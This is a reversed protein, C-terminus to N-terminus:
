VHGKSRAPLSRLWTAIETADDKSVANPPLAVVVDELTYGHTAELSVTEGSPAFRAEAAWDGLIWEAQLGGDPTPYLRPREVDEHDALLRALVGRAQAVAQSTPADGEGECWGRETKELVEVRAWLREIDEAREHDIPEIEEVAELKRPADSLTRGRVHVRTLPRQRLAEMVMERQHPRFPIQIKGGDDTRLFFWSAGDDVQEVEGEIRVDRELPEQTMTAIWERSKQTVRAGSGNSRVFLTEGDGLQRGLHGLVGIAASPFRQPLPQQAEAALLAEVATDRADDFVRYDLLTRRWAVHEPRTLVATLCNGRVGILHLQAADPFGHPVRKRGHAAKYLHRAVVLLMQQFTALEALATVPASHGDFRGGEFTIELFPKSVEAVTNHAYM